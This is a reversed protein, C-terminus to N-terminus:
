KKWRSKLRMKWKYPNWRKYKVGPLGMMRAVRSPEPFCGHQEFYEYLALLGYNKEAPLHWIMVPDYYYNTSVLYFRDTWYRCIYAGAPYVDTKMYHEAVISLIHEDDWDKLEEQVRAKQIVVECYSLLRCLLKRSGAFFEGGYHVLNMCGSGYLHQYNFIINQRKEQYYGHNVAYLILAQGAEDFVEDLNRMCVTDTDLLVMRDDEDMVELMHAISDFKYQTIAWPFEEKSKYKGFPVFDIRIGAEGATKQFESSVNFNCNLICVAGPNQIKASALSVIANKVYVDAADGANRVGASQMQPVKNEKPKAVQTVIYKKM